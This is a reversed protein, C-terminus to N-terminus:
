RDRQLVHPRIAGVSRDVSVGLVSLLMSQGQSPSNRRRRMGESVKGMDKVVSPGVNDSVLSAYGERVAVLAHLRDLARKHRETSVLPLMGEAGVGEQLSEM